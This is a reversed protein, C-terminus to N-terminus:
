KGRILAMWFRVEGIGREFSILKLAMTKKNISMLMCTEGRANGSFEQHSM